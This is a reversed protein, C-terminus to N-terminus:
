CYSGAGGRRALFSLHPRPWVFQRDSKRVLTHCIAKAPKAALLPWSCPGDNVVDKTSTALSACSTAELWFSLPRDTIAAQQHVAADCFYSNSDMLGQPRPLVLSLPATHLAM